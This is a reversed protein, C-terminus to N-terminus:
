DPLANGAILKAYWFFSDKRSRALTRLDDEGRDVYVFGYRKSIGQHTSVLDIASWPCYGLVDVGDSIAWQIQEIHARLYDIRYDDHVAGDPSVEDFAGLGNETVLLPLHYREYIERFTTRFGVPDIEWGFANKTLYPNAVARYVGDEGMSIQQDGGEIPAEDDAGLPAAATHTAYYNFAIFDPKAAALIELDGPEVVPTLGKAALYAWATPNYRGHVAADLYLWNRIANFDSAALVDEPKCTEPYVYAINPAPGVLAGLVLDHPRTM